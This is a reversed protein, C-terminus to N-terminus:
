YNIEFFLAGNKLKTVNLLKLKTITLNLKKYRPFQFNQNQGGCSQIKRRKKKKQITKEKINEKEKLRTM